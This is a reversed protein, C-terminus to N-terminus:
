GGCSLWDALDIDIRGELKGEKNYSNQYKCSYTVTYKTPYEAPVFKGSSFDSWWQNKRAINLLELTCTTTGEIFSCNPFITTSEIIPAGVVASTYSISCSEVNAPFPTVFTPDQNVATATIDVTVDSDTLPSEPLGACATPNQFVDIDNSEVSLLVSQILIGTENSGSSGPAGGGSGCSALSATFILMLIFSFHRVKM